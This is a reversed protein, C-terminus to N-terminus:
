VKREKLEHLHKRHEVCAWLHFLFGAAGMAVTAASLLAGFYHWQLAIREADESCHMASM